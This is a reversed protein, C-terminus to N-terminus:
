TSFTWPECMVIFGGPNGALIRFHFDDALEDTLWESIIKMEFVRLFDPPINIVDCPLPTNSFINQSLTVDISSWIKLISIWLKFSKGLVFSFFCFLLSVSGMKAFLYIYYVIIFDNLYISDLYNVWGESLWMTLQMNKSYFM